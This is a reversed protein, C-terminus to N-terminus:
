EALPKGRFLRPLDIMGLVGNTFHSVVGSQPWIVSVSGPAFLIVGLLLGGLEISTLRKM